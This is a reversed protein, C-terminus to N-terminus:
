SSAAVSPPAVNTNIIENKNCKSFKRTHKKTSMIPTKLCDRKGVGGKQNAISIIKCKAM